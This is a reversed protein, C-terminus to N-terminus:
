EFSSIILIYRSPDFIARPGSTSRQSPITLSILASGTPVFSILSTSFLTLEGRQGDEHRLAYLQDHNKTGIGRPVNTTRRAV